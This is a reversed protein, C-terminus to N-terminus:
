VSSLMNFNSINKLRDATSQQQITRTMIFTMNFNCYSKFPILIGNKDRIELTLNDFNNHVEQSYIDSNVNEFVLSSGMTINPVVLEFLVSNASLVKPRNVAGKLEYFRKAINSHIRLVDFVKFDTGNPNYKPSVFLGSVGSVALPGTQDISPSSKNMGMMRTMDYQVTAIEPYTIIATAINGPNGVTTYGIAIRNALPDYQALWTLAGVGNTIPYLGGANINVNFWACLSQANYSGEAITVIQDANAAVKFVLKNNKLTQSVNIYDWDLTLNVPTFVCSSLTNNSNQIDTLATNNFNYQMSNINNANTADDSSISFFQKTTKFDTM